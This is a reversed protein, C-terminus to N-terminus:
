ELHARLHALHDRMTADYGLAYKAILRFPPPDIWGDETITLHTGGDHSPALAFTWTGGFPLSPDAIRTVLRESPIREVLEFTIPDDGTHERWRLPDRSVIEVSAIGRWEPYAEVDVLADFVREPPAPLDAAVSAHHERDVFLGGAYLLIAVLALAAGLAALARRMRRKM